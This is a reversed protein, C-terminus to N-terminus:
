KNQRRVIREASDGGFAVVATLVAIKLAALCIKEGFVYEAAFFDFKIFLALAIMLLFLVTNLGIKLVALYIPKLEIRNKM